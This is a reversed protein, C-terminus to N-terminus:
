MNMERKFLNTRRAILLKIMSHYEDMLKIFVYARKIERVKWRFSVSYINFCKKWMVVRTNRSIDGKDKIKGEKEIVAVLRLYAIPRNPYCNM